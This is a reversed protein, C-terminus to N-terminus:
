ADVSEFFRISPPGELMAGFADMVGSETRWALYKEYQPRSDWREYAVINGTKDMNEYVDVSQCGDYGRTDPLNKKFFAKIEDVHEPKGQIELLVVCGM